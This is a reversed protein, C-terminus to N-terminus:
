DLNLMERVEDIDRHPRLYVIAARSFMQTDKVRKRLRTVVRNKRSKENREKAERLEKIDRSIELRLDNRKRVSKTEDLHFASISNAVKTAEKTSSQPRTIPKGDDDFWLLKEDDPDYPDLLAPDEIDCSDAKTYARRAEDFLPFANQKGGATTEFVRRSNCFTCSCRYNEWDFALWWYGDHNPLGDVMLKPRFHDVPTDSRIEEAECYWCKKKLAAPLLTYFDRWIKSSQAARLVAAREKHTKATEVKALAAGAAKRWAATLCEEVDEKCIWRM